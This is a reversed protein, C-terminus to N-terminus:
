RGLRQCGVQIIKAPLIVSIESNTQSTISIRIQLPLCGKSIIDPHIKSEQATLLHKVSIKVNFIGTTQQQRYSYSRRRSKDIIHLIDPFQSIRTHFGTQTEVQDLICDFIQSPIDGQGSEM